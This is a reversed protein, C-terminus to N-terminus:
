LLWGRRNWKCSIERDSFVCLFVFSCLHIAPHSSLHYISLESCCFLSRRGNILHVLLNCLVQWQYWPQMKTQAQTRTRLGAFLLNLESSKMVAPHTKMLSNATNSTQRGKIMLTYVTETNTHLEKRCTNHAVCRNHITKACSQAHIHLVVHKSTVMLNSCIVPFRHELM